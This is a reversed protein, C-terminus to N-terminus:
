NSFVYAVLQATVILTLVDRRGALLHGNPLSDFIIRENFADPEAPDM